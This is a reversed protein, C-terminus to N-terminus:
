RTDCEISSAGNWVFSDAPASNGYPFRFTLSEEPRVQEFIPMKSDLSNHHIQRFEDFREIIIKNGQPNVSGAQQLYKWDCVLLRHPHHLWVDITGNNFTTFTEFYVDM